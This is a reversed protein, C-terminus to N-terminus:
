VVHVCGSVINNPTNLLVNGGSKLLSGCNNWVGGGTVSAKNGTIQAGAQIAVSAYGDYQENAIGGGYKAQNQNLNNRANTVGSDAVTVLATGAEGCGDMGAGNYIAGGDGNRANNGQFKSGTVLLSATNGCVGYNAIGGGEGGQATNFSVVSGRIEVPSDGDRSENYIGGGDDAAINHDVSSNVLTLGLNVVIAKGGAKGGGVGAVDFCRVQQTPPAGEAIRCAGYDAIGGGYDASRNSTVKTSTLLVNSDSMRIGGGGYGGGLQNSTNLSVTSATMSLLSGVVNIGGGQYSATNRTVTVGTLDVESEFAYIGGGFDARNGKVTANVMTLDSQYVNLGGGEGSNGNTITLNRITVAAGYEILLTPGTGRGNLTAGSSGGQLTLETVNNWDIVFNGYCTGFITLTDGSNANDIATQLNDSPCYVNTAAAAPGAGFLLATAAMASAVALALSFRKKM